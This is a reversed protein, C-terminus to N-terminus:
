SVAHKMFDKKDEEPVDDLQIGKVNSLPFILTPKNRRSVKVGTGPLLEIDVENKVAQWIKTTGAIYSDCVEM